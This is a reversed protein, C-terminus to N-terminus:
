LNRLKALLLATQQGPPSSSEVPCYDTETQTHTNQLDSNDYELATDPQLTPAALKVFKHPATTSM